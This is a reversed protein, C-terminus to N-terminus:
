LNLYSGHQTPPRVKTDYGLLFYHLSIVSVFVWVVRAFITGPERWYRRIKPWNLNLELQMFLELAKVLM